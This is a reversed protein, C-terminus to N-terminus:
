LSESTNNAVRPRRPHRVHRSQPEPSHSSAFRSAVRRSVSSRVLPRRHCVYLAGAADITITASGDDAAPAAAAHISAGVDHAAPAAAADVTAGGDHGSPASAADATAGGGRASPALLRTPVGIQLKGVNVQVQGKRGKAIRFNKANMEDFSLSSSTFAAKAFTEATREGRRKKSGTMLSTSFRPDNPVSFGTTTSSIREVGGILAIRGM